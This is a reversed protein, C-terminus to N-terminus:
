IDIDIDIDIDIEKNTDINSTSNNYNKTTTTNGIDDINEKQLVEKNLVEAQNLALIDLKDKLKINNEAITLDSKIKCNVTKPTSCNEKESDLQYKINSAPSRNRPTNEGSGLLEELPGEEKHEGTNGNNNQGQTTTKTQSQEPINLLALKTNLEKRAKSLEDSVESPEYLIDNLRLKDNLIELDIEDEEEEFTEISKKNPKGYDLRKKFSTDAEDIEEKTRLHKPTKSRGRIPIGKDSDSLLIHLKEDNDRIMSQLFYFIIFIVILIFRTFSLTIRIFIYYIILIKCKILNFVFKIKFLDLCLRKFKILVKLETIVHLFFILINKFM